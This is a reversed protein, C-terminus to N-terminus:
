LDLEGIPNYKLYLVIAVFRKTSSKIKCVKGNIRVHLMNLSVVNNM